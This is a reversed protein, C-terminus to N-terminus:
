RLSLNPPPVGQVGGFFPGGPAGSPAPLVGVGPAGFGPPPVGANATPYTLSPMLLPSTASQYVPAPYMPTPVQYTPPRTSYPTTDIVGPIAYTTSSPYMNFTPASPLNPNCYFPQTADPYNASQNDNGSATPPPNSTSTNTPAATTFCQMCIVKYFAWSMVILIIVVILAWTWSFGGRYDYPATGRTTTPTTTTTPTGSRTYVKGHTPIPVPVIPRPPVPVPMPAPAPAPAPRPPAPAPAPRPPAPAPAPRPPTPAGTMEWAQPTQRLVVPSTSTMTQLPLRSLIPASAPTQSFVINGGTPCNIWTVKVNIHQSGNTIVISQSGSTNRSIRILNSKNTNTNIEYWYINVDVSGDLNSVAFNDGNEIQKMFPTTADHATTQIINGNIDLMDVNYTSTPDMQSPTIVVRVPQSSGFAGVSQNHGM